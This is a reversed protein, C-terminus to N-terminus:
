GATRRARVRFLRRLYQSLFQARQLTLQLARLQLALFFSCPSKLLVDIGRIRSESGDVRRDAIRGDIHRWYGGDARLVRSM